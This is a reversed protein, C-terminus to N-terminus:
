RLFIKMRQDSGPNDNIKKTLEINEKKIDDLHKNMM